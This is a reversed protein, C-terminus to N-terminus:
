DIYEINLSKLIYMYDQQINEEKNNIYGSVYITSIKSNTTDISDLLSINVHVINSFKENELLLDIIQAVEKSFYLTEANDINEVKKILNLEYGEDIKTISKDIGEYKRGIIKKVEQNIKFEEKSIESKKIGDYIDLNKDVYVIFKYNDNTNLNQINFKFNNESEYNYRSYIISFEETPYNKNLYEMLRSKCSNYIFINSDTYNHFLTSALIIIISYIVCRTFEKTKINKKEILYHYIIEIKSGCFEGLAIYLTFIGSAIINELINTVGSLYITCISVISGFITTVVPRDFVIKGIIGLIFLLPLMRIWIPGFVNALVVIIISLIYITSEIYSITKKSFINKIKDKM